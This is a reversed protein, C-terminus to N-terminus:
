LQELVENIDPYETPEYVKIWTVVHNEDTILNARESTGMEENFLGLKKTYGAFPGHDALIKEKEPDLGIAQAWVAKSPQADVSLGFPVTNKAEFTEINKAMDRM